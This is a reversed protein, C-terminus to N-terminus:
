KSGGGFVFGVFGIIETPTLTMSSDAIYNQQNLAYHFMPSVYFSVSSGMPIALGFGVSAGVDSYLLGISDSMSTNYYGGLILSFTPSLM